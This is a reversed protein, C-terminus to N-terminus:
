DRGGLKSKSYECIRECVTQMNVYINKDKSFYIHSEGTRSEASCADTLFSLAM